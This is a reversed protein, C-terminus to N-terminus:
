QKPAEFIALAALQREKAAEVQEPFDPSSIRMEVYDEAARRLEGALTEQDIIQLGGLEFLQQDSLRVTVPRDALKVQEGQSDRLTM